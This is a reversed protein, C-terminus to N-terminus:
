RVAWADITVQGVSFGFELEPYFGEANPLSTGTLVLLLPNGRATTYPQWRGNQRRVLPEEVLQFHPTWRGEADRYYRVHVLALLTHAAAEGQYLSVVRDSPRPASAPFRHGPTIRWREQPRGRAPSLAYGARYPIPVDFPTAGSLYQLVLLPPVEEEDEEAIAATALSAAAALALGFRLLRSRSRTSATPRMAQAYDGLGERDM